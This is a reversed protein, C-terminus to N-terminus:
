SEREAAPRKFGLYTGTSIGMLILLTADFKPMALQKFVGFVFVIGLLLTWTILQFRHFDVNCRERLLDMFFQRVPGGPRFYRERERFELVRRELREVEAAATTVKDQLAAQTADTAGLLPARATDLRQKAAQLQTGAAARLKATIAPDRIQLEDSTLASAQIPPSYQNIVFASLGTASSIGLLTLESATITNYEGTVVWLFLFSAALIFLWFAMQCLALSFPHRGGPNLPATVDRLLDSNRALALCLAILLVIMVCSVALSWPPATRIMFRQWEKANQLNIESRVIDTRDGFVKNFGVSVLTPRDFVFHGRLLDLWADRNGDTKRLRYEVAYYYVPPQKPDPPYEPWNYIWEPALGPMPHGDLFLSMHQLWDDMANRLRQERRQELKLLATSREEETALAKASEEEKKEADRVAADKAERPDSLVGREILSKFFKEPSRIDVIIEDGLEALFIGGTHAQQSPWRVQVVAGTDQDQLTLVASDSGAACLAPAVTFFMAIILLLISGNPLYHTVRPDASDLKPIEKVICERHMPSNSKPQEHIPLRL